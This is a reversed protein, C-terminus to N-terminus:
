RDPGLQDARDGRAPELGPVPEDDPSPVTRRDAARDVDHPRLGVAPPDQEGGVLSGGVEHRGDVSEIVNPDHRELLRRTAFRALQAHDGPGHCEPEHAPPRPEEQGRSRAPECAADLCRDGGGEQTHVGPTDTRRPHLLPVLRPRHPEDARGGRRDVAAVETGASREVGRAAEAEGLCRSPRRDHGHPRGEFPRRAGRGPAHREASRSM